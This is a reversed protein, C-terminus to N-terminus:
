QSVQTIKDIYHTTFAEWGPEKFIELIIGRAQHESEAELFHEVTEMKEMVDSDIVIDIKYKPM